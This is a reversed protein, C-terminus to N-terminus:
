AGILKFFYLVFITLALVIRYIIFPKFNKTGLYGLLWKLVLFGSVYALFIGLISSSLALDVQETKWFEAKPLLHFSSNKSLVDKFIDFVSKLAAILIAPISLLFSFKVSYPRERGLLLAGSITAGSRSMGPFIALCQFLGILIVESKTLIPNEYVNQSLRRERLKEALFMVLSGILLFVAITQLSRLSSALSYLFFGLILIPLTGIAIQSITVDTIFSEDQEFRKYEQRLSQNYKLEEPKPYNWWITFHELFNKILNPNLLIEKIRLFYTKLEPWFFQIIAILTGLQILNTAQLGVDRQNLLLSALIRLHATSSIPLFETLGQVIGLLIALLIEKIISFTM